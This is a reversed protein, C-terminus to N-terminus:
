VICESAKVSPSSFKILFTRFYYWRFIAKSLNVVFRVFNRFKWSKGKEEKERKRRRGKKEERKKEKEGKKKKEKKRKKRAERGPEGSPAAEAPQGAAVAAEEALGCLSPSGATAPAPARRLCAAAGAAPVACRHPSQARCCRACCCCPSRPAAAANHQGPPPSPPQRRLVACCRCSCVSSLSPASAPSLSALSLSRRCARFSQIPRPSSRDM